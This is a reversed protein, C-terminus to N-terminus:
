RPYMRLDNFAETIARKRDFFQKRSLREKDEMENTISRRLTYFSGPFVDRHKRQLDLYVREINKVLAYVELENKVDSFGLEWYEQLKEDLSDLLDDKKNILISRNNRKNAQFSIFWSVPWGLVILAITVAQYVTM